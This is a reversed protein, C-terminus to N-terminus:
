LNECASLLARAYQDAAERVWRERVVLLWSVLFVGTVLAAVVLEFHMNAVSEPLTKEGIVVPQFVSGLVAICGLGALAVGGPRLGLMNRRFGYSANEKHILRFDAGRCQEKLWDVASAYRLDAAALDAQEEALTPVGGPVRSQLKAHYRARTAENLSQDQHRMWLTTPWGGWKGLLRREVRKGQARAIDALFFVAGCSIALTAIAGGVSGLVTEPFWSWVTVIVPLLVLLAPYVRAQRSYSDFLNELPNAM